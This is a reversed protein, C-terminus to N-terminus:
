YDLLNMPNRTKFLMKSNLGKVNKHGQVLRKILSETAEETFSPHCYCVQPNLPNLSIVCTLQKSRRRASLSSESYCHQNTQPNEMELFDESRKSVDRKTELGGEIRLGRM